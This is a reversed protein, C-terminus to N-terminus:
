RSMDGRADPDRRSTEGLDIACATEGLLAGLRDRHRAVFRYLRDTAEPFAEAFVALPRGGPLRRTLPPVAAGGSWIRGDSTIVHWTAYRGVPDLDGLLGAADAAQISRFTFRHARDWARLRDASWRCFGCDEDYLVLAEHREPGTTSV